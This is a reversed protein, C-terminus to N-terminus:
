KTKPKDSKAPAAADTVPTPMGPRAATIRWEGGSKKSIVVVRHFQPGLPKGDSGPPPAIGTLVVQWDEIAVDPTILRVDDKKNEYTSKALKGMGTHEGTFFKEVAERGISTVGWPDILDGDTAWFAAIAKPDHKNWAIQFAATNKKIAGIDDEVSPASPAPAAALIFAASLSLVAIPALLRKLM